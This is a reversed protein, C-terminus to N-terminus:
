RKQFPLKISSGVGQVRRIEAQHETVELHIAEPLDFVQRKASDEVAVNELSAQCRACQTLPHVAVIVQVLNNVLIVMGEEGQRAASRM